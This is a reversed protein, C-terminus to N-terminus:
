TEDDPHRFYSPAHLVEVDGAEMSLGALVGVAVPARDRSQITVSFTQRVSLGGPETATVTVGASGEAVGTLTVHRGSAAATVITPDSSSAAFTLVAGDPDQFHDAVSLTQTRGVAVSQDPIPVAAVPGHGPAVVTVSPSLTASHNDPDTATM